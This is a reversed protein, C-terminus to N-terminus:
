PQTLIEKAFDYFEGAIQQGRENSTPNSHPKGGKSYLTAIVSPTLKNEAVPYWSEIVDQIVAAAFYISHKPEVLYTYLHARAESNLMKFPLKPDNPNPNYLGLKIISNATDTRVQAIGVSTNRGIVQAGLIDIIEEFPHMRAIEDVLIAGLLYVDLNFKDAADFINSHNQQLKKKVSVSLVEPQGVPKILQENKRLNARYLEVFVNLAPTGVTLHTNQAYLLLNGVTISLTDFEDSKDVKPNTRIYVGKEKQVVHAGDIKGERTLQVAKELSFTDLRNSVFALSKRRSGTVVLVIKM